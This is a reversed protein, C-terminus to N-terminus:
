GLRDNQIFIKLGKLWIKIAQRFPMISILYNLEVLGKLLWGFFGSIVFPGVKAVAYKGGVSIIYPYDMPRYIKHPIKKQKEELMIDAVINEVAIKAQSMAARAVGAIPRKTEPDYFCINDGVAYIRGHLNLDPTQPLCEMEGAVEIRGRKEIKLPLRSVIGSAAVGGAWILADYNLERKSQLTIKGDQVSEIIEGTLVNIGLRSLRKIIKRIVSKKFGPLPTGAAEIITVEAQPLWEKIEGAIEIGTSGGGGIIIKANQNESTIDIITDRIRLADIFSKLPLAHEKLGTISFYNPESGLALILYDFRLDKDNLHIDGDALDIERVTGRVIEVGSNKFIEKLSFTAISRLDLNNATEKSTTAIEYLTPTYTHYSNKDVLIVRYRDRLGYRKLKRDLLLATRVGGFGGGLIVINKTMRAIIIEIICYKLLAFGSNNLPVASKRISKFLSSSQLILAANGVIRNRNFYASLTM